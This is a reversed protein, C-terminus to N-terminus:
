AKKIIRGTSLDVIDGNAKRVQINPENDENQSAYKNYAWYEKKNNNKETNDTNINDKTHTVEETRHKKTKNQIIDEQIHTTNSDGIKMNAPFSRIYTSYKIKDADQGVFYNGHLEVIEGQAELEKKYDFQKLLNDVVTKAYDPDKEMKEIASSSFYFNYGKIGEGYFNAPVENNHLKIIRAEPINEKLYEEFDFPENEINKDSDINNINTTEETVTTNKNLLEKASNSMMFNDKKPINQEPFLTSKSQNRIENGATLEVRYPNHSFNNIIM